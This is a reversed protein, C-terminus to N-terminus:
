YDIENGDWEEGFADFSSKETDDTTEESEELYDEEDQSEYEEEYSDEDEYEDETEDDLSYEQENEQAILDKLLEGDKISINGYHNNEDEVNYGSNHEYLTIKVGEGFKYEPIGNLNTSPYVYLQGINEDITYEGVLVYGPTINDLMKEKEYQDISSDIKKTEEGEITTVMIKLQENNQEEPVIGIANIKEGDATIEKSGLFTMGSPIINEEQESTTVKEKTTLFTPILTVLSIENKGDNYIDIIYDEIVMKELKKASIESTYVNDGDNYFYTYYDSENASQPNYNLVDIYSGGEIEIDDTVDLVTNGDVSMRTIVPTIEYRDVNEVVGDETIIVNDKPIEFEDRDMQLYVLKKNGSISDTYQVIYYKKNDEQLVEPMEQKTDEFAKEDESGLETVTETSTNKLSDSKNYFFTKVSLFATIMMGAAGLILIPMRKFKRDVGINKPLNKLRRKNNQETFIDNVISTAKTKVKSTQYNAILTKLDEVSIECLNGYNDFVRDKKLKEYEDKKLDLIPRLIKKMLVDKSIENEEIALVLKKLVSIDGHKNVIKSIMNVFEKLHVPKDICEFKDMFQVAIELIENGKPDCAIKSIVFVFNRNNVKNNDGFKESIAKIIKKTEELNIKSYSKKVGEIIGKEINYVYDGEADRESDSKIYNYDYTDYLYNTLYALDKYISECKSKRVIKSELLERLVEVSNDDIHQISDISEGNVKQNYKLADFYIGRWPFREENENNSSIYEQSQEQEQAELDSSNISQADLNDSSSNSQPQEEGNNFEVIVKRAGAKQVEKLFNQENNNM